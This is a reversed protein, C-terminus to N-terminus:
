GPPHIGFAALRRALADATRIDAGSWRVVGWGTVGRVDDERRKERLVEDGTTAARLLEPDLYKDTGDFEGFCRARPFGFDMFYRDGDPGIVPVQLDLGRYGLTDLHVRSVSEGPLQARGDAFEIVHRAQRVGRLGPRALALLEDRWVAATDADQTHGQVAVSRLGADAAAVAAPLPATRALDLITRPLSTCRLGGVDVIHCEDVAMQHRVVGAIERTHRRGELVTHVERPAHGWLPLGWIVAASAHTFIPGAGPAAAAVGLVEILHRGEPWLERWDAGTVYTGRHVRRLTGAAVGDRLQRETIGARVLQSRSRLLGRGQTVDIRRMREHQRGRM